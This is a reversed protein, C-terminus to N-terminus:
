LIDDYYANVMRSIDFQHVAWKRAELSMLKYNSKHIIVGEIEKALQIVEKQPVLISTKETVTYSVGGSDFGVVPIGMAQAEITVVGQAEQRGNSNAISTMLFITTKELSAKVEEQTGKGYLVVYGELKHEKILQKLEKHLVGEGIITYEINYGKNVLEKVALIGYSHGKLEILRGISLLSIKANKVIEKPYTIPQYYNTDIGVPITQLLHSPCGLTTVIEKLYPTNITVKDVVKFLMEYKKRLKVKEVDDKFYADYGHFTVMVKSSLFGIKKLNVIFSAADAFHIHFVKAKRYPKYYKLLFIDSLSIKKEKVFIYKIFYYLITFDFLSTFAMKYRESKKVPETFCSTKDMVAYKSIIESQSSETVDYLRSTLVQIDYGKKIAEVVNSVVFTQSVLPFDSVIFVIDKDM